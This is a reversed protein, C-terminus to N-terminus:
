SAIYAYSRERRDGNHDRHSGYVWIVLGGQRFHAWWDARPARAVTKCRFHKAIQSAVQKPSKAEIGYVQQRPNKTHADYTKMM